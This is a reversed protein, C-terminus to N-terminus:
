VPSEVPIWQKKFCYSTDDILKIIIAAVGIAKVLMM